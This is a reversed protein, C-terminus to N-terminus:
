FLGPEHQLGVIEVTRLRSCTGSVQPNMEHKLFATQKDISDTLISDSAPARGPTRQPHDSRHWAIVNACDASDLPKGNYSKSVRLDKMSEALARGVGGFLTTGTAAVVDYLRDAPLDHHSPTRHSEVPDSISRCPPVVTGECTTPCASMCHHYRRLNDLSSSLRLQFMELRIESDDDPVNLKGNAILTASKSMQHRRRRVSDRPTSIRVSHGHSSTSHKAKLRGEGLWQQEDAGRAVSGAIKLAASSHLTSQAVSLSAAREFLGRLYMVNGPPFVLAQESKCKNHGARYLTRYTGPNCHVTDSDPTASSRGAAADLSSRRHSTSAVRDVATRESNDLTSIVAMDAGYVSENVSSPILLTVPLSPSQPPSSSKQHVPTRGNDGEDDDDDRNDVTEDSNPRPLAVQRKTASQDPGSLTSKNSLIQLENAPAINTITMEVSSVFDMGEGDSLLNDFNGNHRNSNTQISFDVQCCELPHQHDNNGVADTMGPLREESGSHADDENSAAEDLAVSKDADQMSTSGFRKMIWTTRRDKAETKSLGVYRKLKVSAQSRCDSKDRAARVTSGDVVHDVSMSSWTGDRASDNNMDESLATRRGSRRLASVDDGFRHESSRLDDDLRPIWSTQDNSCTGCDLDGDRTPNKVATTKTDVSLSESHYCDADDLEESQTSSHDNRPLRSIRSSAALRVASSQWPRRSGFRAAM